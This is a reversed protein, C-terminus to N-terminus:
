SDGLAGGPHPTSISGASARLSPVSLPNGLTLSMEMDTSTIEATISDEVMAQVGMEQARAILELVLGSNDFGFGIRQGNLKSGAVCGDVMLLYREKFGRYLMVGEAAIVAQVSVNSKSRVLFKTSTRSKNFIELAKKRRVAGAGRGANRFGYLGGMSEALHMVTSEIKKELNTEEIAALIISVAREDKWTSSLEQAAILSNKAIEPLVDLTARIVSDIAGCPDNGPPELSMKHGCDECEALKQKKMITIDDSGCSECIDVTAVKTKPNASVAFVGRCCPLKLDLILTRLTEVVEPKVVDAKNLIFVTPVDKLVDRCITVDYDQFRATALNVVYWVVDVVGGADDDGSSNEVKASKPAEESSSPDPAKGSPPKYGSRHSSLFNSMDRVFEDEIGHELGKSDYVVIPKNELDFRHFHQTVPAGAGTEAVQSGFVCNVVSSKGAGSHGCLLVGVKRSEDPTTKEKEFDAKISDSIERMDLTMFLEQMCQDPVISPTTPPPANKQKRDDKKSFLSRRRAKETPKEADKRVPSLASELKKARSSVPPSKSPTIGRLPTKAGSPNVSQKKRWKGFFGESPTPEPEPPPSATGSAAAQLANLRDSLKGADVSKRTNQPQITSTLPKCVAPSSPPAAAHPRPSNLSSGAPNQKSVTRPSAVAEPTNNKTEFRSILSSIGSM